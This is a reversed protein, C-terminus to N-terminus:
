ITGPLSEGAEGAPEPSPLESPLEVTSGCRPCDLTVPADPMCGGLILEGREAADMMEASPYGYIVPPLPVLCAPCATTV